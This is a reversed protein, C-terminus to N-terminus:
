APREEYGANEPVGETISSDFGCNCPTIHNGNPARTCWSEHKGYRRLAERLREVHEEPTWGFRLLEIIDAPETCNEPNIKDLDYWAWDESKDPIGNSIEGRYVEARIYCMIYHNGFRFHERWGILQLRGPLTACCEETFERQACEYVNEEPELRGGPTSLLGAGSNNKRKALLLQGAPNTLLVSVGVPYTSKRTADIRWYGKLLGNNFTNCVVEFPLEMAGAIAHLDRPKSKLVQELRELYVDAM